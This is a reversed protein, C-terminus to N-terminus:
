RNHFKGFIQEHLLFLRADSDYGLQWYTYTWYATVWPFLMVGGPGRGYPTLGLRLPFRCLVGSIFVVALFDITTRHAVVWTSM